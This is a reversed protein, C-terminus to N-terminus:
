ANNKFEYNVSNVTVTKVSKCIAHDPSFFAINNGGSDLVSPYMIAEIGEDKIRESIYQSPLYALQDHDHAPASFYKAVVIGSILKRGLNNM